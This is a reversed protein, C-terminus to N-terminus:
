GGRGLRSKVDAPNVGAARVRVQVETPIPEPAEIEELRLVEPGGFEHQVIAKVLGIKPRSGRPRPRPPTGSRECPKFHSDRIATSTWGRRSDRSKRRSVAPVSIVPRPVWAVRTASGYWTNTIVPEARRTPRIPAASSTGSITAESKPPARASRM